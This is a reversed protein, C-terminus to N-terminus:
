WGESDSDILCSNINKIDSNHTSTSTTNGNGSKVNKVKELKTDCECTIQEYVNKAAVDGIRRNNVKLNSILRIKGSYDDCCSYADLLSQVTPYKKVIEEAKKVSIGNINSLALLWWSNKRDKDIKGIQSTSRNSLKVSVSGYYESHSDSETYGTFEGKCLNNWLKVLWRITDNIDTTQILQFGDRFMTKTMASLVTEKSISTKKIESQLDEDSIVCFNEVLYVVFPRPSISDAFRIMELKQTKYRGDRISSAFDDVRKREVCIFPVDDKLFIFDSTDLREVTIRKDNSWESNKYWDIFANERCDIKLSYNISNSQKQSQSHTPTPITIELKNM